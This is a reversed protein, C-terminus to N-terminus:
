SVNRGMGCTARRVCIVYTVMLVSKVTLEVTRVSMLALRMPVKLAYVNVMIMIRLTPYDASWVTM